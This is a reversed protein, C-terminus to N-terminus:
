PPTSGAASAALLAASKASVEARHPRLQRKATETVLANSSDTAAISSFTLARHRVADDGLGDLDAGAQHRCVARM